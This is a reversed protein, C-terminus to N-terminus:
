AQKGSYVRGNSSATDYHLCKDEAARNPNLIAVMLAQSSKDTLGVLDPGTAQGVDELRHCVACGKAFVAKGRTIDGALTLAAQYDALVAQRNGSSFSEFLRAARGRIEANHHDLLQQRRRADVQGVPLKG